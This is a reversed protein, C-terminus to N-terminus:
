NNLGNRLCLRVQQLNSHVLGYYLLQEGQTGKLQYHLPDFLQQLVMIDAALKLPM